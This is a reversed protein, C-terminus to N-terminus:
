VRIGQTPAAVVGAQETGSHARSLCRRAHAFAGGDHRTNGGSDSVLDGSQLLQQLAHTHRGGAPLAGHAHLVSSGDALVHQHEHLFLTRFLTPAAIAAAHEPSPPAPPTHACSHVHAHAHAHTSTDLRLCEDVPVLGAAGGGLCANNADPHLRWPMASRAGDGGDTARVPTSPHNDQNKRRPSQERGGDAAVCHGHHQKHGRSRQPAQVGTWVCVMDRACPPYMMTHTHTHTHTTRVPLSTDLAHNNEPGAGHGRGDDSEGVCAPQM